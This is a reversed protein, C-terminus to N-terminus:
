VALLATSGSQGKMWLGLGSFLLGLPFASLAGQDGPPVPGPPGLPVLDWPHELGMAPSESDAPASDM